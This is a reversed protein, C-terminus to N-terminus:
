ELMAALAPSMRERFGDASREVFLAAVELRRALQLGQEAGLVMLATALADAAMCEAHLVSVSALAHPVPYGSRPDITHAYRRDGQEFFRRYDGSTAVSLGHLAVVTPQCQATAPGAPPPQELEVWWPQCDPKTGHGRLEGGVEVLYHHIGIEQLWLALLDVAFGKAIASLDLHSGGPQWAHGTQPELRIRNWGSRAQAAAIRRPDPIAAGRPAPGFGWLDVLTGCCPDFAGGSEQALWLAYELVRSFEQPLAMWSGAPARNFRCLDSDAQWTSMQAVVRQLREELGALIAQPALSAPMVLRVSWTTGMTAGGFHEMRGGPVPPPLRSLQAPILVRKM